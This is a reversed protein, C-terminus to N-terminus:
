QSESVGLPFSATTIRFFRSGDTLVSAFLADDGSTLTDIKEVLGKCSDRMIEIMRGKDIDLRSLNSEIEPSVVPQYRSEILQNFGETAKHYYARANALIESSKVELDQSTLKGSATEVVLGFASVLNRYANNADLIATLFLADYDLALAETGRKGIGYSVISQSYISGAGVLALLTTVSLKTLQNPM